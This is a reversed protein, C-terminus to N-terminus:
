ALLEVPDGTRVIGENVVAAYVGACGGHNQAITKLVAPAKEATDPDLTVMMCRGDRKIITVVVNSGIRLSKGVFGDEAFPELEEPFPGSEGELLCGTGQIDGM